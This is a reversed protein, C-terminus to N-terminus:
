RLWDWVAQPNDVMINHGGGDLCRLAPDFRALDAADVMTDDAGYGLSFRCRLSGALATMDPPTFANVGPDQALCWQGPSIEYVGRTTCDLGGAHLGALGSVKLYWDRASRADSFLRPPKQALRHMGEIEVQSWVTKIGLGYIVDPTRGWASVRALELAVAGGYSHGLVRYAGSEPLHAEIAEALAAAVSPMDYRELRGSAGHGPLDLILIRGSWAGPRAAIFPRWIASTTGMGHLLVLLDEGSGIVQSHLAAM